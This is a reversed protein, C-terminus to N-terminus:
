KIDKWSIKSQEFEIKIPIVDIAKGFYQQLPLNEMTERILIKTEDLIHDPVYFYGADHVDNIINVIEPLRNLLLVLAFITMEGATGQAPSNIANREAHSRVGGNISQIDPLHVRRGFFTRVYGFKKAKGIYEKYYDNLKPYKKFFAERKHEAERSSIHLNYDTRAYEKFGEASMGYIFGFNEAKAEFRLKKYEKPDSEKLKQFEELTYGRSNAATIEHLDQGTRYAELMAPENAFLAMIRLEIQSYDAQLMTYGEPVIFAKKVLAVAEEVVKYKTRTIINQLNPKDSSLRGTKAIHQNFNTHIYHNNDLKELISSLYTSVIKNLQRYVILEEIFGTKDKILILNDAETSDSTYGGRPQKPPNFSFGGKTFFLEKLQLPSNFNVKPAEVDILGTKLKELESLYEANRRIQNEQAAKSKFEALLGKDYKDQLENIRAQRAISLKCVEFRVIEPHARMTAEQEEVLTTVKRISDMLFAKDILMGHEEMQFLAKTAPATLNRYMNYIRGDDQNLFIDMFLFYLRLTLDSDLANYKALINLPIKAWNKTGLNQEYNAFRPFFDRVLDKLKHSMNEEYLQSLLMTCHYPGRFSTVGCWAAVHADFKVYHGVKVVNPNGFVHLELLNFILKLEEDSWKSEEHWLPIVYSSGPQFSLSLCTPYFDPDFTAMDTLETTEFDFSCYGTQKIYNIVEVLTDVDEVIKYQNTAEEKVIGMSTQYAVLIDEAYKRIYNPNHELFGPSVIPVVPISGFHQITGAYKTIGKIGTMYNFAKEGVAIIVDTQINKFSVDLTISILTVSERTIGVVEYMIKELVKFASSSEQLASEKVITIRGQSTSM